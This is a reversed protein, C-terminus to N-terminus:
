SLHPRWSAPAPGGVLPSPNEEDGKTAAADVYAIAASMGAESSLDGGNCRIQNLANLIVSQDIAKKAEPTIESSMGRSFVTPNARKKVIQLLSNRFLQRAAM